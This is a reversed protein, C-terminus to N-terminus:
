FLEAKFHKEWFEDPMLNELSAHPRFTNYDHRWSEIKEQADKLSLFCHTNLCEDRSSGNFSEIFANDTPKGQRSFDSTVKNKYAWQDLAKSIFERGNDVQIREPKRKNCLRLQEM